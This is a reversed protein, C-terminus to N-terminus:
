LRSMYKSAVNFHSNEFRLKSNLIELITMLKKIENNSRKESVRPINNQATKIKELIINIDSQEPVNKKSNWDICLNEYV